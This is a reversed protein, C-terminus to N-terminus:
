KPGQITLVYSPFDMDYKLVIDGGGDGGGIVCFFKLIQFENTSKYKQM